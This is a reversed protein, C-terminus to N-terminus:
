WDIGNAAAVSIFRSKWTSNMVSEVGNYFETYFANTTGNPTWPYIAEFVLGLDNLLPAPSYNTYFDWFARAWDLQVGLGHTCNGNCVNTEYYKLEYGPGQTWLWARGIKM